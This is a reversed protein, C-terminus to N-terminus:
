IDFCMATRPLSKLPFWVIRHGCLWLYSVKFLCTVTWLEWWRLSAPCINM